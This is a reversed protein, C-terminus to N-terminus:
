DTKWKTQCNCCLYIYRLKELDYKIYLVEKLKSDLHSKCETNPCDINNVRPLTPDLYTYKNISERYSVIDDNYTNKYLENSDIDKDFERSFSCCKCYFSLKNDVIQTYFLNNCHPCFKM